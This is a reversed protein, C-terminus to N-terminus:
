ELKKITDRVKPKVGSTKIDLIILENNESILTAEFTPVLGTKMNTTFFIRSSKTAIVKKYCCNQKLIKYQNINAELRYQSNPISKGVTMPFSFAVYFFFLFNGIALFLILFFRKWRQLIVLLLLTIAIVILWVIAYPITIQLIEYWKLFADSLSFAIMVLSLVFFIRTAKQLINKTSPRM